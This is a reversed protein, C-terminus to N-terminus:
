WEANGRPPGPGPWHPRVAAGPAGTPRLSLTSIRKGRLKSLPLGAWVRRQTAAQRQGMAVCSLAPEGRDPRSLDARCGVGSPCLLVERTLSM